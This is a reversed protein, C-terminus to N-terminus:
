LWSNSLCKAILEGTTNMNTKALMNKRHNDVTQKSIQLEHAIEKSRKGDIVLRLIQKERVTLGGQHIDIFKNTKVDVFSPRGELGIFSLVSKGQPKLHSIDTYVILTQLIDGNEDHEIVIGQQLLRVYSGDAKRARYDHLIKYNVLDPVPLSSLFGMARNKFDIFYTVDDPHICSILFPIDYGDPSYGLVQEIQTEVLVFDNHSYSYIAYFYHGVHFINLFKKYLEVEFSLRDPV